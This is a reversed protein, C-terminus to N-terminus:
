SLPGTVDGAKGSWHAHKTSTFPFDGAELGSLIKFIVALVKFHVQFCNLLWHLEQFLHLVHLDLNACFWTAAYKSGFPLKRINKM